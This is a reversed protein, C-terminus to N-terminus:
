PISTTTLSGPLDKSRAVSILAVLYSVKMLKENSELVKKFANKQKLYEKSFTQPKGTLKSTTHDFAAKVQSTECRRKVNIQLM